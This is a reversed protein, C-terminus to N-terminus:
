DWKGRWVMQQYERRQFFYTGEVSGAERRDRRKIRKEQRM